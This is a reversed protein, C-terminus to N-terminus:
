LSSAGSSTFGGGHFIYCVAGTVPADGLGTNPVYIDLTQTSTPTSRYTVTIPTTTSASPISGVTIVGPAPSM